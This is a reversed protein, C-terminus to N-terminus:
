SVHRGAAPRDRGRRHAVPGRGGGRGGFRGVLLPSTNAGAQWAGLFAVAAGPEVLTPNWIFTAYSILSASVAALLAASLGAAARRHVPRDLWVIPHRDPEALSNGGRGVNSRRQRAVGGAAAPRLVPCRPPVLQHRQDSGTRIDPPPARWRRECVWCRRGQDSDWGGRLPLNILRLVPRSWVIGCLDLLERRFRRAARCTKAAGRRL